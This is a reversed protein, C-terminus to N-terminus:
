RSWRQKLDWLHAAFSSLLWPAIGTWPAGTLAARLALLLCAGGLANPLFDAIRVGSGQFRYLALLLLGEAVVLALILDIVQGSSFLASM